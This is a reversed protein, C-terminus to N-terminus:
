TKQSTLSFSLGTPKTAECEGRLSDASFFYARSADRRTFNYRLAGKVSIPRGNITAPTFRLREAAQLASQDLGYGAWRTIKPDRVKGDDGFVAEIEVTASLEAREAEATYLPPERKLFIPAEYNPPPEEQTLDLAVRAHNSPRTPTTESNSIVQLLGDTREILSTATRAVAQHDNEASELLWEFRTLQGTRANVLFIAAWSESETRSSSCSVRNMESRVLLYFDCGIAAGLNRAERLTLNFSGDYGSGAVASDVLAQDILTLSSNRAASTTIAEMVAHTLEPSRGVPRVLALRIRTSANRSAETEGATPAILLASVILAIIKM